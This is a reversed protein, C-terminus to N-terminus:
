KGAMLREKSPPRIFTSDSVIPAAPPAHRVFIPPAQRMVDERRRVDGGRRRILSPDIWRIIKLASVDSVGFAQGCKESSAGDAYMKAMATAQQRTIGCHSGM